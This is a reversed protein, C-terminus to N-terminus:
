GRVGRTHVSSLLACARTEGDSAAWVLAPAPRDGRSIARAGIALLLAGLAAGADGFCDAPHSMPADAAFFDAHRIRAVGWQKADFSEGTLGAFTAGIPAGQAPLRARLQEIAMALGEGRAPATGTRHGPDRASAAAEITVTAGEGSAAPHSVVLFAAGEGPLLGDSVASGLLRGEADLAALVNLDLYTDVGGVIVPREPDQALAELALELALLAAARGSPVIRSNAVDLTTGAMTALHLAFGRLWPAQELTLQPLGLFLRLPAEGAQALVARLAPTGLRLMRRARAPWPLAAIQPPLDAQLAAQPVLGMRIPEGRRDLIGSNGIPSLGARISAWIQEVGNGASCLASLATIQGAM